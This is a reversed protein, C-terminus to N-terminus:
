GTRNPLQHSAPADVMTRIEATTTGTATTETSTTTTEASTTRAAQATTAELDRTAAESTEQCPKKSICKDYETRMIKISKM